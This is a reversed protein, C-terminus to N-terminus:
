VGAGKRGEVRAARRRAAAAVRPRLAARVLRPGPRERVRGRRRDEVADPELLRGRASGRRVAREPLDARPARPALPRPGLLALRPLRLLGADARPAAQPRRRREDRARDQEPVRPPRLRPRAERLARGSGRRVRPRRGRLRADDLRPYGRRPGRPAELRREKS